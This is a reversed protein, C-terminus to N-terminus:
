GGGGTTGLAARGGPCGRRGCAQQPTPETAPQTFTQIAPQPTADPSAPVATEIWEPWDIRVNLENQVNTQQTSNINTWSSAAEVVDLAVRIALILLVAMVIFVFVNSVRKSM